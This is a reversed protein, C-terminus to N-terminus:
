VKTKQRLVATPMIVSGHRQLLTIHRKANGNVLTELNFRKCAAQKEISNKTILEPVTLRILVRLVIVTKRGFNTGVYKETLAQAKGNGTLLTMM